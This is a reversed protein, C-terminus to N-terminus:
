GLAKVLGLMQRTTKACVDAHMLLKQDNTVLYDVKARRCAALVLDDEYDDHYDRYKCALWIDSTDVPVAVALEQMSAVADWAWRKITKSWEETLMSAERVWRKNNIILRQYVDLSAQAAFVLSMNRAEAEEFLSRATKGEPRNPLFLDLWVNTDILLVPSDSPM